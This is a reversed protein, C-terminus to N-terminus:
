DDDGDDHDSDYGKGHDDHDHGKSVDGDPGSDDDGAGADDSAADDGDSPSDVGVVGVPDSHGASPASYGGHESGDGAGIYIENDYDWKTSTEACGALLAALAVAKAVQEM